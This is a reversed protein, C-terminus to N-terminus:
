NQWIDFHIRWLHLTDQFVQKDPLTYLMDGLPLRIHVQPRSNSGARSM